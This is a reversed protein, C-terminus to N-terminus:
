TMREHCVLLKHVESANNIRTYSKWWSKENIDRANYNYKGCPQMKIFTKDTDDHKKRFLDGIALEKFLRTKIDGTTM